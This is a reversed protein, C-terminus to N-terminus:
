IKKCVEIAAKLSLDETYIAKGCIAGYVNLAKLNLLDKLSSVGGSAIIHCSVANNLKDLEVLNPGSLMGDCGIDTFIIYQVGISEMRKAMELYNVQSTTTWGEAAVKGERADIGVAIRKGYKKVAEKVFDPNSIAASGLIARSIGNDLYHELTKMNRIGGGVEVQLGSKEQVEFILESNVPMGDKAGDLDVMHVWEAGESRFWKATDLANDAVKQVTAYDGMKLRVCVGDKIDIAPLIIM